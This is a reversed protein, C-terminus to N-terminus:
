RLHTSFRLLLPIRNNREWNVQMKLFRTYLAANNLRCPWIIRFKLSCFHHINSSTRTPFLFLTIEHFLMLYAPPCHINKPWYKGILYMNWSAILLNQVERKKISLMCHFFWCWQNTVALPLHMITQTIAKYSDCNISPRYEHYPQTVNIIQRMNTMWWTGRVMAKVPVFTSVMASCKNLLRNGSSIPMNRGGRLMIQLSHHLQKTTEIFQHLIYLRMNM